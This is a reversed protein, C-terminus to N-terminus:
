ANTRTRVAYVSYQRDGALNTFVYEGGTFSMDVWSALNYSNSPSGSAPTWNPNTSGSLWVFGGGCLFDYMYGNYTDNMIIHGSFSNFSITDNTNLSYISNSADINFNNAAGPVSLSGDFAYQWTPASGNGNTQIFLGNAPDFYLNTSYQGTALVVGGEQSNDSSNGALVSIDYQTFGGSGFNAGQYFYINGSRSITTTKEVGSTNRMGFMLHAGQAPRVLMTNSDTPLTNDPALLGNNLSLQLTTTGSSIFSMVGQNDFLWEESGAYLEIDAATVVVAQTQSYDELYVVGGSAATWSDGNIISGDPLTLTSGNGVTLGGNAQVPPTFTAASNTINFQETNAGEDFLQFQGTNIQSNGPTLRITPQSQGAALMIVENALIDMQSTVTSAIAVTNPFTLNTNSGFTWVNGSSNVTVNGGNTNFINVPNASSTSDSPFYIGTTGDQPSIYIDGTDKNKLWTGSIRLDGTFATTQVTEDNFQIQNINNAQNNDFDVTKLFQFRTTNLNVVQQANSYFSLDGDGASFMGTDLSGDQYFSFGNTAGTGESAVIQLAQFHGQNNIFATQSLDPSYLTSTTLSGGGSGSQNQWTLNGSGDDVLVQGSAGHASPFKYFPFQTTADPNLVWTPYAGNGDTTLYIGTEDMYIDSDGAGTSFNLAGSVSDDGIGANLALDGYGHGAAYYILQGQPGHFQGNRDFGVTKEVGQANVFGFYINSTNVATILMDNARPVVGYPVRSGTSPGIQMGTITGTTDTNLLPPRGGTTVGDGIFVENTTTSIVMEGQAAQYTQVQALAGRRMQLAPIPYDSPTTM